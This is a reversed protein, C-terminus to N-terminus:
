VDDIVGRKRLIKIFRKRARHICVRVNNESIGMIASIERPEKKDFLYLYLLDYDRDSLYDLASKFEEVTLKSLVEDEVRYDVEVDNLEDIDKNPHRKRKRCLDISIHETINAFYLPRENYPIKSVKKLNNIIWLFADQVVDESDAKNHLVGFAIKFMMQGYVKFLEEAFEKKPKDLIQEGETM